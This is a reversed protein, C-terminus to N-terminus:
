KFGQIRSGKFGRSLVQMARNTIQDVIGQLWQTGIKKDKEKLKKIVTLYDKGSTGIEQQIAEIFRERPKSEGEWSQLKILTEKIEPWRDYFENEQKLQRSAGEANSNQQVESTSGPMKQRLEELRKVREEIALDVKENLGALLAEPFNESIFASRVHKYWQKLAMLNGIYILNNQLIRKLGWYGGKEFSINGAKEGRDFILRDPRLEDKRAITGAATVTGFELRSPGVLGGQGGLFIPNQDLMVGRPVDGLLSPTAKDQNPTYNFHIFSSGVESHNKRDTGGAMLCDCFNILSGLTVYPFLITQKLAVSHAASAEEEIICGERVHAGAGMSAKELFVSEKFFGSKLEVKPGVQCNEVTVPGEYGLSVGPLILTSAGFIKCGTYIVVGEGSIREPDVNRDVQVSGPNEIQIGKQILVEVRMRNESKM